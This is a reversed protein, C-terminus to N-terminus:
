RSYNLNLTKELELTKVEIIQEHGYGGSLFERDIRLSDEITYCGFDICKFGSIIEKAMLHIITEVGCGGSAGDRSPNHHAFHHIMIEGHRALLPEKCDPCICECDLGRKVKSIHIPKNTNKDIAYFLM